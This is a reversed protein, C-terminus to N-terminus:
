HTMAYLVYNVGLRYALGTMPAPYYPDDAHEWADGMDINFNIAVMLRGHDDYIGRWHPLGEMRAVIQGGSGIRLHRQGPIQIRDGLDYFVHLVPDDEPVEVIERDPLVRQMAYEFVAWEYEGHMDDVLLFGGRLLYERLRAAEQSSPRWNGQGPQQLFLFPYDFIREDDLELHRSDDAVELNTLRRLAPLFHEEAMPYDIAWWPQMYGRSGGGGFTRYMVRALHFEAEPEDAPSDSSRNGTQSSAIGAVLCVILGAAAAKLTINRRQAWNENSNMPRNM